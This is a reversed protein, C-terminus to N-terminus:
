STATIKHPVMVVPQTASNTTAASVAFNGDFDDFDAGSDSPAGGSVFIGHGIAMQLSVGCVMSSYYGGHLLEAVDDGIYSQMAIGVLYDDSDTALAATFPGFEDYKIRYPTGVVLTDHARAYLFTSGLQDKKEGFPAKLQGVDSNIFVNSM